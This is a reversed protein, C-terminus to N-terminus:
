ADSRASEISGGEGLVWRLAQHAGLLWGRRFEAAADAGASDGAAADDLNGEYWRRAHLEAEVAEVERTTRMEDM